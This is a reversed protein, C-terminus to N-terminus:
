KRETEHGLSGACASPEPLHLNRPAAGPGHMDAGHPRHALRDQKRPCEEGSVWRALVQADPVDKSM